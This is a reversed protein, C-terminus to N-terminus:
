FSASLAECQCALRVLSSSLVTSVKCLIYYGQQTRSHAFLLPAFAELLPLSVCVSVCCINTQTHGCLACGCAIFGKTWASAGACAAIMQDSRRDGDINILGDSKQSQRTHAAALLRCFVLLGGFHLDQQLVLLWIHPTCCSHCLTLFLVWDIKALPFLGDCRTNSLLYVRPCM